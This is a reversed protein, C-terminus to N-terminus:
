ENIEENIISEINEFSSLYNKLLVGDDLGIKKKIRQRAIKVAHTSVGLLQASEKLSLNLRLLISHKIDNGTLEPHKEKITLSFNAYQSELKEHILHINSSSKILDKVTNNIETLDQINGKKAIRDIECEIAELQKQQNSIAMVTALLEEEKQKIHNQLIKKEKEKLIQVKEKSREYKLKYVVILFIFFLALLAVTMFWNLLLHNKKEKQLVINEYSLKENESNKKILSMEANYFNAIKKDKSETIMKQLSDHKQLYKYANKWDKLTTSSLNLYYYATLLEKHQFIEKVENHIVKNFTEIALTYLGQDYQLKGEVVYVHDTFQKEDPFVNKAEQLYIKANNFENLQRYNETLSLYTLIKLNNFHTDRLLDENKKWYQIANKHQNKSSYANAVTQHYSFLVVPLSEKPIIPIISDIKLNQIEKLVSDQQGLATYSDLMDIKNRFALYQNDHKLNIQHSKNYYNLAQAYFRENSLMIGKNTYIYGLLHDIDENKRIISEAKNFYYIVSDSRNRANIYHAAINIASKAEGLPYNIKKSAKITKWLIKPELHLNKVGERILSDIEKKTLNNLTINSYSLICCFLSTTFFLTKTFNM